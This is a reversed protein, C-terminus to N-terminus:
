NNFTAVYRGRGANVVFLPFRGTCGHELEYTGDALADTDALISEGALVVSYARGAGKVPRHAVVTQEGAGARLTLRAGALAEWTAISYPDNGSSAQAATPALLWGGTSAMLAGAGGVGLFRRRTLVPGQARRGTVARASAPPAVRHRQRVM